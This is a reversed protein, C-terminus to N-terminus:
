LIHQLKIVNLQWQELATLAAQTVKMRRREECEIVYHDVLVHAKRAKATVPNRLQLTAPDFITCDASCVQLATGRAVIGNVMLQRMDHDIQEAQSGTEMVIVVQEGQSLLRLARMLMASTRGAGRRPEIAKGTLELVDAATEQLTRIKVTM